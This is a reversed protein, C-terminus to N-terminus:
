DLTPKVLGLLLANLSTQERVPAPLQPQAQRCEVEHPRASRHVRGSGPRARKNRLEQGWPAFCFGLEGRDRDM